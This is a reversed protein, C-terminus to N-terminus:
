ESGSGSVDEEHDTGDLFLQYKKVIMPQVGLNTFVIKWVGLSSEGWCANSSTTWVMDPKLDGHKEVMRSEMGSPSVVQVALDGRRRINVDFFLIIHEISIDITAEIEFTISQTASVTGNQSSVVFLGSDLYVPPALLKWSRATEIIRETDIKGFGYSHSFSRGAGNTKWTNSTPDIPSSSSVIIAQVDRWTLDPRVNLLLCIVGAVMPSSASTGGFSTTCGGKM